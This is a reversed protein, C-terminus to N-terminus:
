RFNCETSQIRRQVQELAPNGDHAQVVDGAQAMEREWRLSEIARLRRLQWAGAILADVLVRQEPHAIPFRQRFELALAERLAPDEGPIM